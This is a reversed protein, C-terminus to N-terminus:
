TAAVILGLNVKTWGIVSVHGSGSSSNKPSSTEPFPALFQTHRTEVLVKSHAAKTRKLEAGMCKPAGLGSFLDSLPTQSGPM